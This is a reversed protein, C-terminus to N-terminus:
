LKEETFLIEFVNQVTEEMTSIFSVTSFQLSWPPYTIERM